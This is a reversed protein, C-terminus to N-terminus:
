LYQNLRMFGLREFRKNITIWFVDHFDIWISRIFHLYLLCWTTNKEYKGNMSTLMYMQMLFNVSNLNFFYIFNYWICWTQVNCLWIVKLHFFQKWSNDKATKIKKYAYISTHTEHYWAFKIKKILLCIRVFCMGKPVNWFGFVKQANTNFQFLSIWFSWVILSKLTFFFFFIFFILM